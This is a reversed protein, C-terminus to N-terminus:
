AVQGGRVHRRRRVLRVAGVGVGLVPRVLRVRAPDAHHHHVVHDDAVVHDDLVVDDDAVVAADAGVGDELCAGDDFRVGDDSGATHDLFVGGDLRVFDPRTAGRRKRPTQEGGFAFVVLLVDFLLHVQPQAVRLFGLLRLVFLDAVVLEACQVVVQVRVHLHLHHRLQPVDRADLLRGRHQGREVAALDVVVVRVDHGVVELGVVLELLLAEGGFHREVVVVAVLGLGHAAHVLVEVGVVLGLGTEFVFVPALDLSLGAGTQVRLVQGTDDVPTIVDPFLLPVVHVLLGDFTTAMGTSMSAPSESM